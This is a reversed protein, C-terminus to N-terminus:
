GRPLTLAGALRRQQLAHLELESRELASGTEDVKITAMGLARAAKLNIGFDDLFIAQDPQVSLLECTHQYIRPDPKRMGIKSSEVVVEFLEDFLPNRREKESPHNNTICGVRLDPVSRLKKVVAVMEPRIQM